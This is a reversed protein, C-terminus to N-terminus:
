REQGALRGGAGASPAEDAALGSVTIGRGGRADALGPAVSGPRALRPKAPYGPWWLRDLDMAIVGSLRVPAWVAAVNFAHEREAWTM